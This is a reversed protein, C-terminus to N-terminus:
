KSPKRKFIFFNKGEKCFTSVAKFVADKRTNTCPFMRTKKAKINVIYCGTPYSQVMFGLSDIKDVVEMLNDWSSYYNINQSNIYKNIAKNGATIYTKSLIPRRNSM